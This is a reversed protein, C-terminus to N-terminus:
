SKRPLALQKVFLSKFYSIGAVIYLFTTGFVSVWCTIEFQHKGYEYLLQLYLYEKSRYYADSNAIDAPVEYDSVKYISYYDNSYFVHFVQQLTVVLLLPIFPLCLYVLQLCVNRFANFKSTNLVGAIAFIVTVIFTLLVLEFFLFDNHRYRYPFLMSIIFLLIPVIITAIITVIYQKWNVMKFLMLLLVIYFTSYFIFMLFEFKWLFFTKYKAEAINDICKKVDYKNLYTNENYTNFQEQTIPSVKVLQVYIDLYYNANNRFPVNYKKVVNLYKTVANLIDSQNKSRMNYRKELQYRSLLNYKLTDSSLFYPTFDDFTHCNNIYYIDRDKISDFESKYHYLESVVYPEGENLTNIDNVLETDTVTNAIRYNYIISFPYAFTMLILISFFYLFFIKYEDTWHRNGYNKEVNFIVNRYIWFCLAIIALVTFLFYWVALDQSEFLNIPIVIGILASLLWMIIGFFLVYHIKSIWVIPANLLLYADLNRLFKPILKNM